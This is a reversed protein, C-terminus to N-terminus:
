KDWFLARYKKSINFIDLTAKFMAFDDKDNTSVWSDSFEGTKKALNIRRAAIPKHELVTLLNSYTNEPDKVMWELMFQYGRLQVFYNLDYVGTSTKHDQLEIQGDRLVLRDFTGAVWDRWEEQKDEPNSPAFVLLEQAIVHTNTAIDNDIVKKAVLDEPTDGWVVPEGNMIKSTADEIMAHVTHGFDKAYDSKNTYSKSLLEVDPVTLPGRDLVHNIMAERNCKVAWAMLTDTKSSVAGTNKDFSISGIPKQVTTMGYVVHKEGTPYEIWYKHAKDNYCLKYGHAVVKKDVQLEDLDLPKRPAM